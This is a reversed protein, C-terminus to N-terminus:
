LILGQPPTVIGGHTKRYHQEISEVPTYPVGVLAHNYIMIEQDPSAFFDPSQFAMKNEGIPVPVVANKYVLFKENQSVLDCIFSGNVTTVVKVNM